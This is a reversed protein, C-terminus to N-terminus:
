TILGLAKQENELEISTHKQAFVKNTRLDERVRGLRDRLDVCSVLAPSANANFDM